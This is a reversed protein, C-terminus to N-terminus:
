KHIKLQLAEKPVYLTSTTEIDKGPLLTNQIRTTIMQDTIIKSNLMELELLFNINNWAKSM